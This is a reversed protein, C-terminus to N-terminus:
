MILIPKIVDGQSMADAAKEIEKFPFSSILRDIPFRGQQYLEVLIPVIVDPESTGTPFGRISIGSFAMATQAFNALQDMSGVGLIACIGKPALCSAAQVAVSASGTAEIAINYGRPLEKRAEAVVDDCNAANIVKTAGLEIALDLRNQKLDVVCVKTCGVALAALAASLGVTGAGFVIVSSGARPRLGEIITGAGTLTGCAFSPALILDLTPPLKTVNHEHALAHTAFSSQGFFQGFIQEYELTLGSTGDPRAGSLNLQLTDQCFNRDGEMCPPCIGCSLRSLLVHDGVQVKRVNKGIAEVVGSGEHGLVIPFPLPVSQNRASLDSACIGCAAIKVRVEDDRPDDLLLTEISFRGGPERVLAADISISM